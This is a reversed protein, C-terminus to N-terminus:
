NIRVVVQKTMFSFCLYEYKWKYKLAAEQFAKFEDERWHQNGIYEDFVIVTGSIIQKAFIDLVTKTSSYIDCDINMFRIPEPHQKVFEPLTEEFWGEHLIVNQPVFPIVGKTSYSGKSENHWAEPLGQFSDFGHVNQDVLTSILRISTGFRVGFELVLGDIVAADIGLKFTPINSGTIIPMKRNVSKIYRWADLQAKVTKTGSEVIEFHATAKRTDGSYDLLMGLLFRSQMNLPQIDVAKEMCKIAPMLDIPNLLLAHRNYHVDSYDPRIKVAKDYNQMAEELQGLDALALGKNNYAEAYDPNLQIAKDYCQLAEDTQGLLRLVIGRNNYPYAYDPKLQIAKDYNQMAEDLQGLVQLTAGRSNYATAFDPKLQIAKDYNQLAEDLRDLDKLVDGRSSYTEAYDPKLQIAKDYNQLAEDLRGLDKLVDGRNSYAEAYDPKLQIAKDYNQMAEELEGLAQLTAGRSNYATVFDPSLRIATDYNEIAEELQGLDRVANGRNSYAQAYDPNLQIAKDYSKVAERLKGQGRLAAGLMNIVFLSEPHPQLLERCAQETKTMQGSQYLNILANVQEQPLNEAQAAQNRPLKKKLQRLKKKAISHNPQQQLIGTYIELAEAIKGQNVAKKARSIAQQITLQQSLPINKM